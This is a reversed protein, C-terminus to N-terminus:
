KAEEMLPRVWALASRAIEREHEAGDNWMEVVFPGRYDMETLIAFARSFPVVGEGFGVRRFAGVRADKIHIAVSHPVAGRLQGDFDLDHAVINGIDPYLQFWPNAVRDLLACAQDISAVSPLDANELGIMVSASRAKEAMTVLGEEYRKWTEPTSTEYYVDHGQTQIIRVGIDVCLDLARDFIEWARSRTTKDASAFPFRRHGSLCLHRIPVGTDRIARRITEREAATWEIRALRDDSEDISMELFDYGYERTRSLIEEWSSFAPLAKEYIGIPNDAISM